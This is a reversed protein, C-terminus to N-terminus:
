ILGKIIHVIIQRKELDIKKIVEKTAPLLIEGVEYVDNAATTMVNDLNGLIKGDDTIVEMGLLDKIYYTGEPLDPAEDDNITIIKGKYKEILNIDDIGKIKVIAIDKQFRVKEIELEEENINIKELKEFNDIFPLVKLEGKIGFTNVVKGVQIM